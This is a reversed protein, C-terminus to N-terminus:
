DYPRLIMCCFCGCTSILSSQNRYIFLTEQNPDYVIDTHEQDSSLVRFGATPLNGSPGRFQFNATTTYHRGSPQVAYPTYGPQLTGAAPNSVKSNTKYAVNIEPIVKQGITVVTYSGDAETRVGWSGTENLGPANPSVNRTHKVYLDRFLTFAGQYGRQKTLVLDPTSPL